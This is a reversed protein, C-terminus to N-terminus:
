MNVQETQHYSSAQQTHTRSFTMAKKQDDDDDGSGGCAQM